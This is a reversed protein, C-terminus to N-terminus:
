IIYLLKMQADRKDEADDDIRVVIGGMKKYFEIANANYKNVSVFFENFGNSKIVCQATQFLRSGIGQKQYEKLIYLLGIEQGYGGFPRHPKGCKMYAIIRGNDCAVFLSIDPDATMQEFARANKEIDCGDIREDSYIGRYTTEWVERKLQAIAPCDKPVAKRIEIM